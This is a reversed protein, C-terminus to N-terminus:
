NILKDNKLLNNLIEIIKIRLDEIRGNNSVVIDSLKIVDKIGWEIERKDREKIKRIINSDDQRGRILGRKYRLNDSSNIAILIFNNGLTRKFSEVEKYSRIGDILITRVKNKTKIKEITKIAWIDKGIKDRMENAIFGVNKDSLKLGRKKVEEWVLDGMRIVEINMNRAIKVAETKGSFPMGTFAIIKM